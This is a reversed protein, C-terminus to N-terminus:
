NKKTFSYLLIGDRIKKIYRFGVKKVLRISALNSKKIIAFYNDKSSLLYESLMKYGFGKQRLDKNINWSLFKRNKENSIRLYGKNKQFILIKDKKNNIIKRYWKLHDLYSIKRQYISNKRATKEFRLNFILKADNLSAKLFM